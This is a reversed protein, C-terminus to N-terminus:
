TTVDNYMNFNLLAEAIYIKKHKLQKLIGKFNQKENSQGPLYVASIGISKFSIGTQQLINHRVPSTFDGSNNNSGGNINKVGTGKSTVVTISILM